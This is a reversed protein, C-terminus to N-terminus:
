VLNVHVFIMPRRKTEQQFMGKLASEIRDELKKAGNGNLPFQAVIERIRERADEFLEEAEPVYVFGRSILEPEDLLKGTEGDMVLVAFVFGDRALTERDRMVSRGVDGVGMGDVFVYRGPVREGIAMRGDEFEIMTGNEVVAINDRPVGIAEALKCHQTLQRLEGHIPIFYKPRVLNLMLKLEERSAHGSVHVMEVPHYLVNAGRQILKNITRSVMEENGPIIHASMVVTDGPRIDLQRHHGKALRSLVASPEGQTGTSMIVVQEPPLRNVEDLPIVLDRPLDLYGLETAMKINEVMSYGTAAIKRNYRKAANAVQQIRNILSAFTAVIIRGRANQFVRDLAEDIITETPTWGAREANTSDSLLALVGRKGFEALKAFDPPWGDAPTHDFKFDGTHVVLGAPTTIGFGVCDPISHTIHFSEVSFPGIELTDGAKFIHLDTQNLLKAQRLKVEVLGATLRTAYVPVQFSELVHILAGTHDEHGHTILIALVELDDRDTLYSFDPIIYDIGLMDSEPFMLGADVIIAKHDYELVTMNKGVEGAGGLPLVTLKKSSM